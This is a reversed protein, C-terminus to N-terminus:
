CRDQMLRTMWECFQSEGTKQRGDRGARRTKSRRVEVSNCRSEGFVKENFSKDEGDTANCLYADMIWITACPYGNIIALKTLAVALNAAALDFRQRSANVSGKCFLARAVGVAAYCCNRPCCGM